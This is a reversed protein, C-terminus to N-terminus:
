PLTDKTFFYERKIVNERGKGMNLPTEKVYLDHVFCDRTNILTLPIPLSGALQGLIENPNEDKIFLSADLETIPQILPMNLAKALPVWELTDRKNLIPAM